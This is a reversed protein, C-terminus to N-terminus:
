EAVRVIILLSCFQKYKRHNRFKIQFNHKEVSCQSKLKNETPFINYLIFM